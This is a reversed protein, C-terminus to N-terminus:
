GRNRALRAILQRQAEVEGSTSSAWEHAAVSPHKPGGSHSIKMRRQSIRALSMTAAENPFLKRVVSRLWLNRRDNHFRRHWFQYISIPPFEQPLRLIRVKAGTAIFYLATPYGVTAALGTNEIIATLGLHHSTVLSVKRRVRARAMLDEMGGCTEGQPRVDVHDLSLYEKLSLREGRVPCSSPVICVLEAKFLAQQFFNSNPLNLHSGIAIDIHGSMLGEITEARPTHVSRIQAHPAYKRLTGVLVPFFLIEGVETLRFTVTERMTMPDFGSDLLVDNQVSSLIDRSALSLAKARPTPEVGSSTKVFLEDDFVERLRRLATSVSPQSMRLIKAADTVNRSEYLAVLIPLLNLDFDNIKGM